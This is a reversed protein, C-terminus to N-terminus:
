NQFIANKTSVRAEAEFVQLEICFCLSNLFLEEKRVICSGCAIDITRLLDLFCLEYRVEALLTERKDKATQLKKKKSVFEQFLEILFM